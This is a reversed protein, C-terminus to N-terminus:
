PRKTRARVAGAIRDGFAHIALGGLILTGAAADRLTFREGLFLSASLTGFIPVLLSFPAVATAGRQSILRNWLGYALLTSAFALYAVAGVSRLSLGTLAAAIAAPGEFALSLAFLPLPSFVSSWVMLALADVPGAKKVVVNAAAWMLAALVVLGLAHLPIAAAGAAASARSLAVLALGSFAVAMGALNRPKLREGAFLAALIATFFAQVQLVISSLGAPAGLKMGTFLFGFQGVGLLLGYAAVYSVGVKPFKIFLVAPFASLVFRLAALLLPPVGSIGVAIVVFNFGWIATVLVAVPVVPFDFAVPSDQVTKM